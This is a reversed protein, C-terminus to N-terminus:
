NKLPNKGEFIVEIMNEVSHFEPMEVEVIRSRTVENNLPRKDVPIVSLQEETLATLYKEKRVFVGQKQAFTFDNWDIGKEEILRQKQDETNVGKLSKHSFHTQSVMSVSNKICDNVRWLICNYAEMKNPVSFVRADFTPLVTGSVKEPFRTQMEVLFKVAAMAAFNSCIKQVRGAFLTNGNEPNDTHLVLTIEDSQTYGIKAHTQEVLYKTTEVMAQRFDDDFPRKMGKCFKSFSRGDLRVMIPTSASLRSESNAEYAKMRDGLSTKDM